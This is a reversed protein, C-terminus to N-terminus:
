NNNRKPFYLYYSSQNEILDHSKLLNNSIPLILSDNVPKQYVVVYDSLNLLKHYDSSDITNPSIQLPILNISYKPESNHLYWILQPVLSDQPNNSHYLYVFSNLHNAKLTGVITKAGTLMSSGKIENESFTRAFMFAILILYGYQHIAMNIREKIKDNALRIILIVSIIFIMSIIISLPFTKFQFFLKFDTRISQSFSWVFTLILLSFLATKINGSIKIDIRIFKSIFYSAPLLLFVTYHPLKTISISFISFGIILWFLFLKELLDTNIFYNYTKTILQSTFLKFRHNLLIIFKTLRIIPVAILLIVFPNSVIMQNLYYFIGLQRSNGEVSSYVHQLILSSYFPKGYKFAMYTYWPMTIAISLVASCIIPTLQKNQKLDKLVALIFLFPLFSVAYKTLMAFVFSLIYIIFFVLCKCKNSNSCSDNLKAIHILSYLNIIVLMMLPIETMAQRSYFNWALSSSLILTAFAAQKFPRNNAIIRFFVFLTIVSSMAPFIRVAFENVGFISFSLATMWVIFPPPTSSYLHGLSFSTQDWLAGHEICALSRFAYLGEDWSQIEFSSIRFFTIFGIICFILILLYTNNSPSNKM